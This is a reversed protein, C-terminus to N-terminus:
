KPEINGDKDTPNVNLQQNQAVFATKTKVSINLPPQRLEKLLIINASLQRNALEVGKTFEKLINVKLQDFSFRGEENEVLRNWIMDYRLARWYSAVIRDAIMLELSTKCSCEAVIDHRMKGLARYYKDHSLNKIWIGNKLGYQTFLEFALEDRREIQEPTLKKSKIVLDTYEKILKDDSSFDEIFVNRIEDIKDPPMEQKILKKSNDTKPGYLKVNRHKIKLQKETIM